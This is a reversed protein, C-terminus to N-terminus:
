FFSLIRSYTGSDRLQGVVMTLTTLNDM